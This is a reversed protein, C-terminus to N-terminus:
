VRLPYVIKNKLMRQTYCVENDTTVEDLFAVDFAASFAFMGYITADLYCSNKDDQIGKTCTHKMENFTEDPPVFLDGKHEYLM